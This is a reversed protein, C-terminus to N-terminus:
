KAFMLKAEQKETENMGHIECLVDVVAMLGNLMYQDDDINFKLRGLTNDHLPIECGEFAREILALEQWTYGSADVQMKIYGKNRKPWKRQKAQPQPTFFLRSWIPELWATGRKWLLDNGQEPNREITCNLKAAIINGVACASCDMHKLTDNMYARVLIAVTDHFKEKTYNM